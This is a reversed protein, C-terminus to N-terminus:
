ATGSPREDNPDLSTKDNRTTEQVLLSSYIFSLPNTDPEISILFIKIPPVQSKPQTGVNDI